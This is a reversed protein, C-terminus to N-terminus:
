LTEWNLVFNGFFKFWQHYYNCTMISYIESVQLCLHAPSHCGYLKNMFSDIDFMDQNNQRKTQFYEHRYISFQCVFGFSILVLLHTIHLLLTFPINVLQQPNRVQRILLKRRLRKLDPSVLNPNKEVASNLAKLLRKEEYISM